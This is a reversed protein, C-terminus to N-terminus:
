RILLVVVKAKFLCEKKVGAKIGGSQSRELV